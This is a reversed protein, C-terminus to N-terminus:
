IAWLGRLRLCSSDESARVSPDHNRIGISAHIDTHANIRHKHQEIHLYHRAAPQDETWPTRGVTYFHNRFQLLPWSGVFTQIAVSSSHIQGVSCPPPFVAILRHSTPNSTKVATVIFFATKQPTAGHLHPRNFRSVSTRRERIKRGQLHHRYSGGFRRNLLGCRCPAVGWFVANKM